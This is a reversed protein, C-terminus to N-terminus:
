VMGAAPAVARVAVVMVGVAAFVVEVPAVAPAPLLVPSDADRPLVVGVVAFVVEVPVAVPPVGVLGFGECIWLSMCDDVYSHV